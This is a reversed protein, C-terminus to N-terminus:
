EFIRRQNLARRYRVANNNHERLTKAFNHYGSFDEKAAMYIYDHDEYNLVAEISATEPFSIPGPPLGAYKYTNFPSDIELHKNLVRRISFDGVAYKVTPDAQLLMGRKLRNIYLGAVRQLEDKRSTEAQVISALTIVEAPTLNIAKAKQLREKTWFQEYEKKMRDAFGKATTTWYFEYTNPIFMARFTEPTFGYEKILATDQFLGLIEVSDAQLYKSIRGALDENFRINNFTVNVPDQLGGVLKNIIQNTNMGKEIRYRGPKIHEPYNKKKSVWSFAKYNYLVEDSKLESYVDRYTADEPIILVYDTKTNERFAYMYLQYGRIGTIIFAIAFFIIIYKGFKPFLM